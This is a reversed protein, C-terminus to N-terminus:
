LIGTAYRRIRRIDALSGEKKSIIEVKKNARHILWLGLEIGFTLLLMEINM